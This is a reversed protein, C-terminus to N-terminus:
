TLLNNELVGMIIPFCGTDLREKKKGLFFFLSRSQLLKVNAGGGGGLLVVKTLAFWL